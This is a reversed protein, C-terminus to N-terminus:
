ERIMLADLHEGADVEARGAPVIVLLEFAAISRLAGSVQTALPRVRGDADFTARVYHTRRQEGRMPAALEVRRLRPRWRARPIGLLARISPRAFLEFTVLTSAPNGPLALVPLKPARAGPRPLHGFTTPRGPRLALKRFGLEFGLADLTPLVLDHDGVSIGGSTVLLDARAMAERIAANMAERTDAVPGLTLPEGGAERVEARLMMTNTAVIQGPGPTQGLGVLEDGSGLLAVIPRRAVELEVHGSAALLSAGGSSLETGAALLLDGARVDSGLARIWRGPGADALADAGFEILVREGLEIRRTDEQPVVADAGPPVVAGTAIRACGGPDLADLKPHGASSRGVLELALTEAGHDRAGILAESAVAYGDMISLPASPLSWHASLDRALVRGIAAELAVTERGLPGPALTEFLRDFGAEVSLKDASM